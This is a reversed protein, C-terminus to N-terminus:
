ESMFVIGKFPDHKDKEAPKGETKPTSIEETTQQSPAQTESTTKKRNLLPSRREVPPTQGGPPQLLPSRRSLSPSTSLTVPSVSLKSSETPVEKKQTQNDVPSTAEPAEEPKAKPVLIKRRAGSALEQPTASPIPSPCDRRRLLPSAEPTPNGLPDTRSVEEVMSSDQQIIHHNNEQNDTGLESKTPFKKERLSNNKTDHEEMKCQEPTSSNMETVQKETNSNLETEPTLKPIVGVEKGQVPEDKAHELVIIYSEQRSAKTPSGALPTGPEQSVTGSILRKTLEEESPSPIFNQKVEESESLPLVPYDKLPVLTELCVDMVGENDKKASGDLGATEITPGTDVVSIPPIALPKQLVEVPPSTAGEFHIQEESMKNLLNYVEMLTEKINRPPTDDISDPMSKKVGPKSDDEKLEKCTVTVTTTPDQVFGASFSYALASDLAKIQSRLLEAVSIVNCPAPKPIEQFDTMQLESANQNDPTKTLLPIAPELLSSKLNQLALSAEEEMKYMHDNKQTEESSAVAITADADKDASVQISETETHEVMHLAASETEMEVIKENPAMSDSQVSLRGVENGEVKEDVQIETGEVSKIATDVQSQKASSSVNCGPSNEGGVPSQLPSKQLETFFGTHSENSGRSHDWTDQTMKDIAAQLGRCVPPTQIDDTTTERESPTKQRPQADMQNPPLELNVPADNRNM